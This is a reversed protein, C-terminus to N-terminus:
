FFSSMFFVVGFLECKIVKLFGVRYGQRGRGYEDVSSLTETMFYYLSEVRSSRVFM